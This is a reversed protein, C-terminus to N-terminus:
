KLLNLKTTIFSLAADIVGVYVAVFIIVGLVVTTLRWAEKPTPWTTKKLEVVVERLFSTGRAMSPKTGDGPTPLTKKAKQQQGIAM